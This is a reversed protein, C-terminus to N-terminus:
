KSGFGGGVDPSVVRVKHEPLGLTFATLLLRTLHPNQSTTYITYQDRAPDYDGITCRPEIANPVLRQNIFSLKTVHHAGAIANDAAAKNGLEWDYCVNDSAEDHICPAGPQAAAEPDTVAPMTDYHVHVLEAADRAAAYTEAIVVAVADGAFRVRDSALVPHAPEKMPEGNKSHVLWGTPVAPNGAAKLDEGTFVAVVGPNHKAEAIDFGTIKAHAHPSRIFVAYTMGPLVIDDTYRGKGTVFKRDEVRKVAQGIYAGM